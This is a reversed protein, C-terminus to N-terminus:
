EIEFFSDKPLALIDCEDPVDPQMPSITKAALIYATYSEAAFMDLVAEVAHNFKDWHLKHHEFVVIPQHQAILPRLESLVCQEAGEVDVKILALSDMPFCNMFTRGCIMHVSMPMRARDDPKLSSIGRNRAEPAFGFFQATGDENSLAAELSTVHTMGNLALNARLRSAVQPHPEISIVRGQPGVRDAMVLSHAGINAGVDLATNGAKLSRKIINGITAEYEGSFLIDREQSWGTNIHIQVGCYPAILEIPQKPNRPSLCSILLRAIAYLIPTRNKVIPRIHRAFALLTRASPM